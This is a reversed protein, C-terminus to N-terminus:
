KRFWRLVRPPTSFNDSPENIWEVRTTERTEANMEELRKGMWYYMRQMRDLEGHLRHDWGVEKCLQKAKETEENLAKTLTELQQQIVARNAAFDEIKERYYVREEEPLTEALETLFQIRDVAMQKLYAKRVGTLIHSLEWRRNGSIAIQLIESRGLYGVKLNEALWAKKEKDNSGKLYYWVHEQKLAANLVADSRMMAMQEERYKATEEPGGLCIVRFWEHETYEVETVFFWLVPIAVAAAVLGHVLM